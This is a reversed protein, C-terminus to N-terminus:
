KQELKIASQYINGTLENAFAEGLVDTYRNYIKFWAAKIQENIEVAKATAYIFTTRGETHKKLLEQEILKDVLRTVTSPKLMMIKALEGAQIGPNKIVSMLIFAYSPALNVVAFEEEAIKTIIRALANASYYLCKCYTNKETTMIPTFNFYFVQVYL